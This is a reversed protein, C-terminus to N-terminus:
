TFSIIPQLCHCATEVLNSSLPYRDPFFSLMAWVGYGRAGSACPLAPANVYPQGHNDYCEYCMCRFQKYPVGFNM